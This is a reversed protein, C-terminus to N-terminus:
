LVFDVQAARLAARGRRVDPLHCEQVHVADRHDRGRAPGDAEPAPAVLPPRIPPPTGTTRVRARLVDQENPVYGATAIRDISNFYYAASDNLQYENSRAFAMQVGDDAWLARIAASIHAPLEPGTLEVYELISKVHPRNDKSGLNIRLQGMAELVARMSHVLNDCVTPRYSHREAPTYGDGHIIKM